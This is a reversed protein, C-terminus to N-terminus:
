RVPDIPTALGLRAEIAEAAELCLDDRLRRGTILVGIPLGTEEDRGAPVCASPLGMLNAPVVPRSMEKVAATGEPTATDFGHAFPLQTWTPSLLLPWDAMFTSWARAIGDRESMLQSWAATDALTPVAQDFNNLFAMGDASMISSLIGLISRFDGMILRAWCSVADEYRPPCVEEVVYGADALVQGARRVIAAVKPDTSGGPPEPLVAVRIPRVLSPGEFPADISWPDRPHAGMLVKLGLRVDAVRRAMPGQVHMLQVALLRDAAPGFCADPVRGASPRISAIGCANAPNRLSGGIDNGLGIPSMGSALASAEGGSSGGATRDPNWPNRTLGHL